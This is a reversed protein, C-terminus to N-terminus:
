MCMMGNFFNDVMPSRALVDIEKAMDKVLNFLRRGTRGKVIKGKRKITYPIPFGKGVIWVVREDLDLKKLNKISMDPIPVFEANFLEKFHNFLLDEINKFTLVDPAHKKIAKFVEDPYADTTLKNYNDEINFKLVEKGDHSLHIAQTNVNEIDFWESIYGDNFKIRVKPYIFYSMWLSTDRKIEDLHSPEGYKLIRGRKDNFLIVNYRYTARIDVVTEISKIKEKGGVIYTFFSKKNLDEVFLPSLIKAISKFTDKYHEKDYMKMFQRLKDVSADFAERDKKSNATFKIEKGPFASFIFKIKQFKKRYLVSMLKIPDSSYTSVMDDPFIDIEVWMNVPLYKNFLKDTLKKREKETPAYLIEKILKNQKKELTEKNM